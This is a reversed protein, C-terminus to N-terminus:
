LLKLIETKQVRFKNIVYETEFLLSLGPICIDLAFNLAVNLLNPVPFYM